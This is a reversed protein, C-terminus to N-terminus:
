TGIKIRQTPPLNGDSLLIEESEEKLYLFSTVGQEDKSVLAQTGSSSKRQYWDSFEEYDAKLSDFFIDHLDIDSFKVWKFDGAMSRRSSRRENSKM